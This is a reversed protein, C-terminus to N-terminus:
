QRGNNKEVSMRNIEMRLNTQVDPLKDENLNGNKNIQETRDGIIRRADKTNMESYVKEADEPTDVKM